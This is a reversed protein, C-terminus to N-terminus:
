TPVSAFMAPFAAIVPVKSTVPTVVSVLGMNIVGANPVGDDPVNDEHVTSPVSATPKLFM